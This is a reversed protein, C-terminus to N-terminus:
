LWLAGRTRGPRRRRAPSVIQMLRLGERQLRRLLGLRLRRLGVALHVCQTCQWRGQRRHRRPRRAPPPRGLERLRYALRRMHWGGERQPHGPRLVERHRRLRRRQHRRAPKGLGHPHHRIQPDLPGRRVRLILGVLHGRTCGGEYSGHAPLLDIDPFNPLGSVAHWKREIHVPSTMGTVSLTVQLPQTDGPRFLLSVGPVGPDSYERVGTVDKVYSPRYGRLLRPAGMDEAVPLGNVISFAGPWCHM